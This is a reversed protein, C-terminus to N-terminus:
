DCICRRKNCTNPVQSVVRGYEDLSLVTGLGTGDFGEFASLDVLVRQGPTATGESRARRAPRTEAAAKACVCVSM